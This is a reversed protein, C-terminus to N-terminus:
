PLIRVGTGQPLLSLKAIAEADLRICGNSIAGSRADHYHFATVAVPQGGFGALTPSQVSLYVLPHGRTYAYQPVVDEFMLFARGLPTPTGPAGSGFDTAVLTSTEPAVSGDASADPTTVIAITRYSLDVEVRQPDATLTVDAARMWGTVQRPDGSGPVGQRGVLLVRVWHDHRTIVPVVTGGYTQEHALRAVPEGGETAFVPAGAAGPQAVLGTLAGFPDDDVPLAPLVAFVDVAPLTGLDYATTDAPAGIPTPTPTPTPTRTPTPMPREVAAVERPIVGRDGGWMAASAGALAGVLVLAVAGWVWRGRESGSM